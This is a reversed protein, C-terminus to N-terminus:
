QQSDRGDTQEQVHLVATEILADVAKRPVLLRREGIRIAIGLQHALENARAPKVGILQGFERISLFERTQM